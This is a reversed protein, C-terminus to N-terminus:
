RAKRNWWKKLNILREYNYLQDMRKLRIVREPGSPLASIDGNFKDM